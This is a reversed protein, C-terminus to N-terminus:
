GDFEVKFGEAQARVIRNGTAEYEDVRVIELRSNPFEFTGGIMMTGYKKCLRGLDAMLGHEDEDRLHGM